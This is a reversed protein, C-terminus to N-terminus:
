SKKNHYTSIEPNVLMIYKSSTNGYGTLSNQQTIIFTGAIWIVVAITPVAIMDIWTKDIM